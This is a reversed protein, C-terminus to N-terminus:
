VGHQPHGWSGFTRGVQIELWRAGDWEWTDGLYKGDWGGFLVVRGRANDYSMGQHDRKLQESDVIKTWKVGDWEWTDGLRGAGQGRSYGGFLVVKGRRSDYAMSHNVRPVPGSSSVQIWKAGDWKWTDGAPPQNEQVAGGFLVIEQRRSDYVMQPGGRASPGAAAVQRWAKGDWEWTDALQGSTDSGGFMVVRRRKSDYAMGM